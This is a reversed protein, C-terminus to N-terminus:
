AFTNSCNIQMSAWFLFEEGETFRVCSM